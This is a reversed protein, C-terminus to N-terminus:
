NRLKLLLIVSIGCSTLYCGHSAAFGTSNEEIVPDCVARAVSSLLVGGGGVIPSGRELFFTWSVRAM